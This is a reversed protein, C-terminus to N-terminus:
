RRELNPNRRKYLNPIPSVSMPMQKATLADYAGSLADVQDDHSGMPFVACEDLFARNWEGRITFVKEANVRSAIPQARTYKDGEPAKADLRFGRLEPRQLLYDLQVIGAKEAELRIRTERGDMMANSVIDAEVYVPTKQVRYVHLIYINEQKDIGLLLGVTYDSHKKATVALDYFRVKELNPPIYDIIKIKSVDFLGAKSPMPRQQYQSAFNYEGIASKIKGLTEESYREPWLAEGIDRGLMDNEEAIAPLHIRAWGEQEMEVARGVPDDSHWRTFMMVIFGFPELRNYLDGTFADWTKDRMLASEAEARNKVLDDCILGHAGKGTASGDIGFADCGGEYDALDWSRVNASDGALKIDPFIAQYYPSRIFNRAVRSNKEALSAGYSALMFRMYPNRGLGWSPFLRSVTMTKGHRPPVEIILRSIGSLGQTETYRVCQTLARDIVAMHPKHQYRKYLIRKFSTFDWQAKAYAAETKTATALM